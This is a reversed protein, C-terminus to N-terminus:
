ERAPLSSSHLEQNHLYHVSDGLIMSRDDWVGSSYSDDSNQSVIFQDVLEVGPTNGVQVDFTYLGT